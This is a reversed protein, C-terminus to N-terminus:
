MKDKLFENYWRFIEYIPLERLDSHRNDRWGLSSADLNNAAGLQPHTYEGEVPVDFGYTAKGVGTDCWGSGSRERITLCKGGSCRQDRLLEFSPELSKM